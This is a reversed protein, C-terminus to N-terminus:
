CRLVARARDLKASRGERPVGDLGWRAADKVVMELGAVAYELEGQMAELAAEGAKAPPAAASDRRLIEDPRVERWWRLNHRCNGRQDSGGNPM